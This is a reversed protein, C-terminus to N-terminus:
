VKIWKAFAQAERTDTPRGDFTRGDDYQELTDAADERGLYKAAMIRLADWTYPMGAALKDMADAGKPDKCPRHLAYVKGGDATHLVEVWYGSRTGTALDILHQRNTKM